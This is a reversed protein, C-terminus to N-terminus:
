EKARPYYRNRHEWITQTARFTEWAAQNEGTPWDCVFMKGQETTSLYVNTLQLPTGAPILGMRVLAFAYAALQEHHEPWGHKDPINKATKWDIVRNVGDHCAVLDCTGAYGDGVVVKEVAIITPHLPRFWTLAANVIPWVTEPVPDFQVNVLSQAIAWHVHSGFAAAAEAEERHEAEDHLVRKVFDDLGEDAQRPSTLVALCQQEAIWTQLHPKAIIKQISTVSPLLGFERAERLTTKKMGGKKAPVEHMPEGDTTYWHASELQQVRATTIM